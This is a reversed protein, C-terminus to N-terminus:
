TKRSLICRYLFTYCCNRLLISNFPSLLSEFFYNYWKKPKMNQIENLGYKHLREEAEETSLGNININYEKIFDDKPLTAEKGYLKQVNVEEKLAKEQSM